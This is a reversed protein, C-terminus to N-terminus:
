GVAADSLFDLRAREEADSRRPVRGRLLVWEAPPLGARPAPRDSHPQPTAARRSPGRPPPPRRIPSPPAGPASGVMCAEETIQVGNAEYASKVDAVQDRRMGCLALIGHDGRVAAVITPAMRVLAAPLMNAVVLDFQTSASSAGLFIGKSGTMLERGHLFEIGGDMSNLAANEHACQLIEDDKDIGVIRTAGCRKAALALVGSGTGYDLMSMDKSNMVTSCIFQLCMYTSPHTGEGWAFGPKIIVDGHAFAEARQNNLNNPVIRLVPTDNVSIVVPDFTEMSVSEIVGRSLDSSQMSISRYSKINSGDPNMRKGFAASLSSEQLIRANSSLRTFRSTSQSLKVYNSKICLLNSLFAATFCPYALIFAFTTFFHYFAAM